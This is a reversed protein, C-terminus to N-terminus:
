NMSSHVLLSPSYQLLLNDCKINMMYKQVICTYIHLATNEIYFTLKRSWKLEILILKIRYHADLTWALFQLKQRKSVPMMKM